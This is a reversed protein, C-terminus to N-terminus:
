KGLLSELKNSDIGIVIRGDIDFVPTVPVNLKAFAERAAADKYIDLEIFPVGRSWLYEKARRCMASGPNVYLFVRRPM